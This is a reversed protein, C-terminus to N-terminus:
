AGTRLNRGITLLFTAKVKLEISYHPGLYPTLCLLHCITWLSVLLLAYPTWFLRTIRALIDLLLFAGVQLGESKAALVARKAQEVTIQKNM